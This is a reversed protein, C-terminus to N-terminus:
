FNLVSMLTSLIEGVFGKEPKDPYEGPDEQSMNDPELSDLESKNDLSDNSVSVSAVYGTAVSLLLSFVMLIGALKGIKRNM